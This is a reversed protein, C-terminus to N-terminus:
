DGQRPRREHKDQCAVCRVTAPMAKLRKQLIRRECDVCIRKGRDDYLPEEARSELAKRMANDRFLEEHRQALDIDDM